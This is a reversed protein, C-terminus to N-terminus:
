AARVTGAGRALSTPLEVLVVGSTRRFSVPFGSSRLMRLMRYNDALVEGTLRAVGARDAAEALRGLLITGLGRGQYGDAILM